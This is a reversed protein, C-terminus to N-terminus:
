CFVFTCVLGALPVVALALAAKGSAPMWAALVGCGVGAVLLAVFLIQSIM